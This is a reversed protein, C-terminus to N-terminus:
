RAAAAPALRPRCLDRIATRLADMGDGSVASVCLPTVGSTQVFLELNATAAPVDMKNAVVLRPRQLLAANHFELERLLIRFDDWPNRADTGAMDLVFILAHARELHKLFAHGLGVGEHAGDILGPIDAVSLRTYDDFLMTGIVPHLTTFPYSAVKPHADTLRSLLSSKGANPFGVLGVDALVKLEFRATVQEGAEGETHETPAQHTATKWHINGRGGRGGRALVFEQGHEVIDALLDGSDARVIETGCPVKVVRNKGTRGYLQKGKGHTGDEARQIPVYFLSVLSETDRDGIVVVHGGHGGDGGDPGGQPVFKERRFSKCGNGGCGGSAKVEVSDVFRRTKV